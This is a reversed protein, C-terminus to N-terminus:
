NLFGASSKSINIHHYIKFHEIAFNMWLVASSPSAQNFIQKQKTKLCSIKNNKQIKM